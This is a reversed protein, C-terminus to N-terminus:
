LHYRWNKPLAMLKSVFWGVTLDDERPLHRLFIEPTGDRQVAEILQALYPLAGDTVFLWDSWWDRSRWLTKGYASTSRMDVRARGKMRALGFCGVSRWEVGSPALFGLLYTVEVRRRQRHLGQLLRLLCSKPRGWALALLARLWVFHLLTELDNKSLDVLLVATGQATPVFLLSDGGIVKRYRVWRSLRSVLPTVSLSTSVPHWVHWDVPSASPRPAFAFLLLGLSGIPLWWLPKGNTVLLAVLVLYLVKIRWDWM